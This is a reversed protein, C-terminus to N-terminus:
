TTLIQQHFNHAFIKESFQILQLKYKITGVDHLSVCQLFIKMLLTKGYGRINHGHRTEHESLIHIKKLMKYPSPLLTTHPVCISCTTTCDLVSKMQVETESRVVVKFLFHHSTHLMKVHFNSVLRLSQPSRTVQTHTHAMGIIMIHFNELSM